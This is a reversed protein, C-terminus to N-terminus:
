LVALREKDLQVAHALHVLRPVAGDAELYISQNSDVLIHFLHLRLIYRFM